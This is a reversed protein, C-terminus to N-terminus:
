LTTTKNTLILDLTADKRTHVKVVQKLACANRIDDVKLDNFDGM